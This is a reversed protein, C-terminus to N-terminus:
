DTNNRQRRKIFAFGLALTGFILAYTSPEPVATATIYGISAHGAVSRENTHKLYVSQGANIQVQADNVFNAENYSWNNHTALENGDVDEIVIFRFDWDNGNPYNPSSTGYIAQFGTLWLTKDVTLKIRQDNDATNDKFTLGGYGGPSISLAAGDYANTDWNYNGVAEITLNVGAVSVTVSTTTSTGLIGLDWTFPTQADAFNFFFALCGFISIFHKKSKNM